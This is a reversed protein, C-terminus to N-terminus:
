APAAFLDAHSVTVRAAGRRAEGWAEAARGLAPAVARATGEALAAILAADRPAKLVWDSPGEVVRYGQARLLDAFAGHAGPGLAPGLGKDRRQDAHFAALVAADEAMAPDWAERGTYSLVTYVPLRAAALAEVLAGLWDAGALDLLASATVLDPAPELLPGANPALDAIRRSLTVGEPATAADLLAADADVLTWHQPLPLLPSTARLNNGSGAGLDLVRVPRPLSALAAAMAAGVQPNRARRDAEARLALWDTSFGSM